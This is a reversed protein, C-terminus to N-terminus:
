FIYSYTEVGTTGTSTDDEDVTTSICYTNSNALFQPEAGIQWQAEFVREPDWFLGVGFFFARRWSVSSTSRDM